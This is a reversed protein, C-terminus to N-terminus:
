LYNYQWNQKEKEALFKYFKDFNPGFLTLKIFDYCAIHNKRTTKRIQLNRICKKSERINFHESISM